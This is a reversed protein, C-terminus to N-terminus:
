LGADLAPSGKYAKMIEPSPGPIWTREKAKVRQNPPQPPSHPNRSKQVPCPSHDGMNRLEPPPNFRLFRIDAGATRLRCVCEDSPTDAKVGGSNSRPQRQKRRKM